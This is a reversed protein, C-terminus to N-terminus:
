AREVEIKIEKKKAERSKPLKINLVGNKFSAKIEDSQVDQQLWISRSLAGDNKGIRNSHEDKEEMNKDEITLIGDAFTINIEMPDIGPGEAKVVIDNKTESVDLSSFWGREGYVRSRPRGQSLVDWLQDMGGLIRESKNMARRAGKSEM